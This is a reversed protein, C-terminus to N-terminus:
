TSDNFRRYIATLGENHRKLAKSRESIYVEGIMNLKHNKTNLCDVPPLPFTEFCRTPVYQMDTRMTLKERDAWVFHISSQLVSFFAKNDTAFVILAQDYVYGAPVFYIDFKDSIEGTGQGNIPLSNALANVDFTMLSALITVVQFGTIRKM